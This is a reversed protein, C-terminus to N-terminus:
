CAGATSAPSPRIGLSSCFELFLTTPLGKTFVDAFQHTTPVHLVRIRGLAVHDRVFHLDIEIHKTRQHQVPNHSMYVASINDCYVLSAGPIPVHLEQLLQRLWIVEAVASAMARYEAEASSRSVTTQRKSSWSVLNDGFFVCYGTTSRRSDPCGAWDADTYVQLVPSAMLTITLGHHLTGRVYRLIRKLATFHAQRPDHMFLCIQNVAYAIDPRTFTLYQLAGALARYQTPDDVPPSADAALKGLTDVPTSIPKCNLMQARDLIDLAYQHQSLFLGQSLKQVSVGLFYHLPGLDTM